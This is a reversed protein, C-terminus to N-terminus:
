LDLRHVKDSIYKQLACGLHVIVNSTITTCLEGTVELLHAVGTKRALMARFPDISPKLWPYRLLSTCGRREKFQTTLTACSYSHHRLAVHRRQRSSHAHLKGRQRISTPTDGKNHRVVAIVLEPHHLAGRLHLARPRNYRGDRQSRDPPTMNPLTITCSGLNRVKGATICFSATSHQPM